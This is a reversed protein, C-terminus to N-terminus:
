RLQFSENFTWIIRTGGPTELLLQRREGGNPAVRPASVRAAVPAAAPREHRVIWATSVVAASLAVVAM